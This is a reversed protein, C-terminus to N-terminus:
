SWTNRIMILLGHVGHDFPAHSIINKDYENCLESDCIDSPVEKLLQHRVITLGHLYTHDFLENKAFRTRKPYRGAVKQHKSTPKIKTFLYYKIRKWGTGDYLWTKWCKKRIKTTQEQPGLTRDRALTPNIKKFILKQHPRRHKTCNTFRTFKLLNKFFSYLLSFKRVM